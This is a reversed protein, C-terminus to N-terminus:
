VCWCATHASRPTVAMRAHAKTAAVHLSRQEFRVASPHGLVSVFVLVQLRSIEHTDHFTNCLTDLGHFVEMLIGMLGNLSIGLPRRRFETM